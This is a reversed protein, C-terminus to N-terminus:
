GKKNKENLELIEEVISVINDLRKNKAKMKM